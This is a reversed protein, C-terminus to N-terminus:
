PGCHFSMSVICTLLGMGDTRVFFVGRKVFAWPSKQFPFKWMSNPSWLSPSNFGPSPLPAEDRLELAQQQAGGSPHQLPAVGIHVGHYAQRLLDSLRAARFRLPATLADLLPLVTLKLSKSIQHNTSCPNWWCLESSILVHYFNVQSWWEDGLFIPHKKLDGTM